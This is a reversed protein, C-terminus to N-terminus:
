ATMLIIGGVLLPVGLAVILLPLFRKMSFGNDKM